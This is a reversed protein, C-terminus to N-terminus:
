DYNKNQKRRVTNQANNLFAKTKTILLKTKASIGETLYSGFRTSLGIMTKVAGSKSIIKSFLVEALGLDRRVQGELPLNPTRIKKM